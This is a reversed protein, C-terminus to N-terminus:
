SAWPRNPPARLTTPLSTPPVPFHAPMVPSISSAPTPPRFGGLSPAITLMLMPLYLQVNGYASSGERGLSQLGQWGPAWLTSPGAFADEGVAASPARDSLGGSPPGEEDLCGSKSAEGPNERFRHERFFRGEETDASLACMDTKESFTMPIPSINFKVAAGPIPYWTEWRERGWKRKRLSDLNFTGRAGNAWSSKMPRCALRGPSGGPSRAFSPGRPLM